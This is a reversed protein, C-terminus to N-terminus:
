SNFLIYIYKKKEIDSVISRHLFLPSIYRIIKYCLVQFLKVIILSIILIM